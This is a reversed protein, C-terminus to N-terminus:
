WLKINVPLAPAVMLDQLTAGGLYAGNKTATVLETGYYALTSSM